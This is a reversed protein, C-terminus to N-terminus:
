LSQNKMTPRLSCTVTGPQYIASTKRGFNDVAQYLREPLHLLSSTHSLQPTELPFENTLKILKTETVFAFSRVNFMSSGNDWVDKSARTKGSKACKERYKGAVGGSVYCLVAVALLTLSVPPKLMGFFLIYFLLIFTYVFM